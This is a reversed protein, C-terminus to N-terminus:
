ETIIIKQVFAELGNDLKLLYIGVAQESLNLKTQNQFSESLIVKGDLTMFRLNWKAETNSRENVFLETKAPNPFIRFQLSADEIEAVDTAPNGDAASIVFRTKDIWGGEGDIVTFVFSDEEDMTGNHRYIIKRSSIDAQTFRAGRRMVTNGIELQGKTPLNVVTYVLEEPTNNNDDCLLQDSEIYTGKGTGVFLVENNVIFPSDLVADSCMNLSFESLRGGNGSETDEIKLIWEGNLPEGIFASLPNRPKMSQGNTNPCGNPFAASDDFGTNITEENLCGGQWLIVSTGTPSILSGRISLLEKHNGILTAVNVDTVTGTGQVEIKSEITPTGASPINVPLDVAVYDACSLALTSFTFIESSVEGLCDNLALVRWYYLSSNDLNVQANAETSLGTEERYLINEEDFSPSTALEFRYAYLNPSADWEFTPLSVVGSTGSAPIQLAFDDVFTSKADVAVHVDITDVGPATAQIILNYVGTEQTQSMDINLVSSGDAPIPNQSFSAVAGTPLGSIVELNIMDSYGLISTAEIVTEVMGPLCVNFSKNDSDVFFSPETPEEVRITGRNINFFVSNSGKVKVKGNQTVTNPINIIESGDNATKAKLLYPFSQAGDDSFYIDVFQCNVIDNDTDAVDWEVTITKGPKTSTFTSPETVLFPGASASSKFALTAWNVGGATPNNDRVVFNFTLDRDYTPLREERWDVGNLVSSLRPFIRTKSTTPEYIRFLPSNGVPAGLDTPFAVDVQEWSYLLNDGDMDSADGTLEFPTAIPIHFGGQQEIWVDPHHNDTPVHSGCTRGPGITIFSKMQDLTCVHYQIIDGGSLNQDGCAGLYSLITAGSGPECSSTQAFQDSSSPCNNWTHGASFQHGVEHATTTVMFNSLNSGGVCSVGAGKNNGCASSGFAIGGVSDETCRITFVHGVDYADAGVNSNIVNTNQRLTEGGNDANTYPDSPGVFFILRDNNDILEFKIALEDELLSNLRNVGTNMKSMIADVTGGQQSGWPGTCALAFRYTVKTVAEGPKKNKQPSTLGKRLLTQEKIRKEYDLVNCTRAMQDTEIQHDMVYYSIYHGDAKEFYPDIYVTGKPTNVSARLGENSIDLRAVSGDASVGRYSRIHPFKASLVPSMCPSEVFDFDVLGDEGIPLSLLIGSKRTDQLEEMPAEALTYSLKNIDLAYSNYKTPITNRELGITNIETESVSKWPSQSYALSVSFTLLIALFLRM